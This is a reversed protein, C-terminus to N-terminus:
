VYIGCGGAYIESGEMARKEKTARRARALKGSTVQRPDREGGGEGRRM